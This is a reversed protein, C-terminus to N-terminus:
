EGRSIVQIDKFGPSGDSGGIVIYDLYPLESVDVEHEVWETYNGSVEYNNTGNVMSGSVVANGRFLIRNYDEAEESQMGNYQITKVKMKVKQPRDIRKIPIMFRCTTAGVPLGTTSTYKGHMGEKRLYDNEVYFPEGYPQRYLLAWATNFYASLENYNPFGGDTSSTATKYNSIDFGDVIADTNFLGNVFIDTQIIPREGTATYETNSELETSAGTVLAFIKFYYTTLEDLGSITVSTSSASLSVTTGDTKSAPASNKKYVLTLYDYTYSSDVSYSVSISTTGALLSDIQPVPIEAAIARVVKTYRYDGKTDYPFIGYYYGHGQQITNDVLPTVSYEDRTTSDEILTGDWRHLPARNEKRVVVTGAWTAPCPENTAIDAPDTWNLSVENNIEDYEVVVDSPEDLLRFGINRIIEPFNIDSTSGGGGQAMQSVQSALAKTAATSNLNESLYEVGNARYTDRLSQIGTLKRELIFTLIDFNYITEIAVPDGVEHVPNGQANIECPLYLHGYMQDCLNNAVSQLAAESYNSILPNYAITYTNYNGSASQSSTVTTESDKVIKVKKIVKFAHEEFNLDTYQSTYIITMGPSMVNSPLNLFRFKGENTITGFVGNLECIARIIDAGSIQQSDITRSISLTDNILTTSEATISFESLLSARLEAITKTTSDDPLQTNYWETVDANLIDYMADYGTIKRKKGDPTLRKDVDVKFVCLQLMKSAKGDPIFYVTLVKGNLESGSKHIIFSVAAAECSGFTLQDSSNISQELSFSESEIDENTFTATDDSVTYTDGSVTVTGDTILLQVTTGETLFIDPYAYNIM